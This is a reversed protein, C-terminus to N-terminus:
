LHAELVSVELAGGLTEVLAPGVTEFDVAIRGRRGHRQHNFHAHDLIHVRRADGDFAAINRLLLLAFIHEFGIGGHRFFVGAFQLLFLLPHLLQQEVYHRFRNVLFHLIEAAGRRLAEFGGRHHHEIEDVEGLHRHRAVRGSQDGLEVIDERGEVTDDLQEAALADLGDAVGIHRDGTHGLRRLVM